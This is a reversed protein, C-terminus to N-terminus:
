AGPATLLRYDVTLTQGSTVATASMTEDGTYDGFTITVGSGVGPVSVSSMTVTTSTASVVTAGTPVGAGFIPMGATVGTTAAFTLVNSGAASSSSTALGFAQTVSGQEHCTTGSSDYIRYYGITGSTSVTGSWTGAKLAGGSSPAAMWDSPLTLTALLTGTASASCTSPKSGSYYRRLPATGITDEYAQLIANRVAFGLQITM